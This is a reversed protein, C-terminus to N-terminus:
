PPDPVGGNPSPEAGLGSLELQQKMSVMNEIMEQLLKCMEDEVRQSVVWPSCAM